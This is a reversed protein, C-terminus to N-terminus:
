EKEKQNKMEKILKSILIQTDKKSQHSIAGSPCIEDCGSCLVVCNYPNEVCAMKKGTKEKFEFVGLTCYEVCRGCSSCKNYDVVPYWPIRSRLIGRYREESM